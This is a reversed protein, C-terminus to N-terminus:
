LSPHSDPQFNLPVRWSALIRGQDDLVQITDSPAPCFPSRYLSKAYTLAALEDDATVQFSRVPYALTGDCTLFHVLFCSSSRM